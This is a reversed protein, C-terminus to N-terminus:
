LMMIHKFISKYNNKLMIEILELKILSLLYIQLVKLLMKIDKHPLKLQLMMLQSKIETPIQPSLKYPPLKALPLTLLTLIPEQLSTSKLSDIIKM